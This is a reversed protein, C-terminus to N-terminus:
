AVTPRTGAGTQKLSASFTIKGDLQGGQSVSEIYGSGAYYKKTSADGEPYLKFSLLTGPVLLEQGDTDAANYSGQVEYTTENRGPIFEKDDGGGMEGVEVLDGKVSRTWTTVGAVVGTSGIVLKGSKGHVGAM